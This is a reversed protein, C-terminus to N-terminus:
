VRCDLIVGRFGITHRRNLARKGSRPEQDKRLNMPAVTVCAQLVAGRLPTSLRPYDNSPTLFCLRGGRRWEM